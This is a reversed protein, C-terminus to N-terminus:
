LSAIPSWGSTPSYVWPYIDPNTWLWGSVPLWFWGDDEPFMWQAVEDYLWRHGSPYITGMWESSAWDEHSVVWGPLYRRLGALRPEGATAYWTASEGSPAVVEIEARARWDFVFETGPLTVGNVVVAAEPSAVVTTNTLATIMQETLPISVSRSADDFVAMGSQGIADLYLLRHDSSPRAGTAINNIGPQLSMEFGRWNFTGDLQGPLDVQGTLEDGDRSLEFEVLGDGHAFAGRVTGFSGLEPEMKLSAFGPAAPKAGAVLSYMFYAPHAGWAHADSRDHIIGDTEGVTTHNRSLFFEWIDLRQRWWAGLGVKEMAKFYHYHSFATLSEDFNTEQDLRVFLRDQDEVPHTDTIIALTNVHPILVEGAVDDTYLGLEEDYCHTRINQKLTEALQLKAAQGRDVGLADCLEAWAQITYIYWLTLAASEVLENDNPDWKTDIHATTPIRHKVPGGWDMFPDNAFTSSKPPYLGVNILGHTGLYGASWNMIREAEDLYQAAFDKAERMLVLNRMSQVWAQSYTDSVAALSFRSPHALPMLGWLPKIGAANMDMSHRILRDDGLLYLATPIITVNDGAYNLQEYFPCDYFTEGSCMEVTRKCMDFIDTLVPDGEAEFLVADNYPYGSYTFFIDHLTAPDGATTIDVQVYRFVRKWLPRWSRFASGDPQVIDYVGGLVKGDIAERDGKDKTGSYVLSEGYTLRIESGAGGSFLIEPYGMTLVDVDLLFTASSYAPVTVSSAGLLFSTNAAATTTRRVRSFRKTPGKVSAIETDVLNWEPNAITVATSWAGDNFTAQKWTWPYASANFREHAGVAFWGTHYRWTQMESDTLPTRSTDRIIKWPNVGTTIGVSPNECQLIFGARSIVQAIPAGIRGDISATANWMEVAIINEGPILYPALDYTEFNWHQLDGRVPGYGVHQGNVYLEYRNDASVHVPLSTPPTGLTFTKRLLYVRHQTDDASPHTIWQADTFPLAANLAAAALLLLCLPLFRPLLRM